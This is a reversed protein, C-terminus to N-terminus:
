GCRKTHLVFVYLEELSILLFNAVGVLVGLRGLFQLRGSESEAAEDGEHRALRIALALAVVTLGLCLVTIAHMAWLAGAVNCTFRVFGAFFLLHITWAGISGAVAYWVEFGTRIASGISHQRRAEEARIISV